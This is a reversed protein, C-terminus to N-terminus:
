DQMGAVRMDRPYELHYRYAITTKAGPGIDMHWEFLNLDTKESPEPSAQELKVKIQEHRSVPIQDKVVVAASRDLLNQLRIEYGYGIQRIDRLLRKDVDRRVLERETTIREEVGLLLELEGTAPTYPLQTKGIFEDGVFLNAEGALLPGVADATVSARRFVADTHRPVALYDIRPALKVKNLLSKHPSGDSPVTTRGPVVYRVATGTDVMEAAEFEVDAQAPASEAMMASKYAPAEDAMAAPMAARLMRPQPRLEDVFWPHLEPVRQNLAPRATSVTLTVDAWDQGTNQTMQALSTLEVFQGAEAEVLRVDYLPQWGAHRVVYSLALQLDGAAAVDVEVLARFRQRPRASQHEKLEQELKNIRRQLIRHQTDIDRQAARVARDREQVHSMLAAQDAVTTRGRSLGKAYEATAQRLGELYRGEADWGAREDELARREIMLQELADELDRVATSPTATYHERRVDVGLIRARATGQGSVRLSEPELVLPLEEFVLTQLGAEVACSGESTIRARDPYVTVATIDADISTTM